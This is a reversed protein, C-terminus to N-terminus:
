KQKDYKGGKITARRMYITDCALLYGAILIDISPVSYV